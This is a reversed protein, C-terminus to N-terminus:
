PIPEPQPEPEIQPEPESTLTKVPHVPSIFFEVRRNQERGADTDNSAVPHYEGLGIAKLRKPDMRTKDILYHVVSTARATSLEWNSAYKDQFEPKIQKSDTHGEVRIDFDPYRKLIDAVADLRRQGESSIRHSGSRFLLEDDVRLVTYSDLKDVYMQEKAALSDLEQQLEGARRQAAAKESELQAVRAQLTDVRSQLMALEQKHSACGTLALLILAAGIASILILKRM